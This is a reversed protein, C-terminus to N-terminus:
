KANEIHLIKGSLKDYFIFKSVNMYIYNEYDEIEYPNEFDPKSYYMGTSYYPEILTGYLSCGLYNNITENKTYKIYKRATEVNMKIYIGLKDNMDYGLFNVGNKGFLYYSKTNLIIVNYNTSGIKNITIKAGFANQGIYYKDIKNTEFAEISKYSYDIDGRNNRIKDIDFIICLTSDDADYEINTLRNFIIPVKYTTSDSKLKDIRINYDNTTEFEDKNYLNVISQAKNFAIYKNEQKVEYRKDKSKNQSHLEFFIVLIIMMTFIKKM